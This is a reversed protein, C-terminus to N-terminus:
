TTYSRGVGAGLFSIPGIENEGSVQPPAIEEKAGFLLRVSTELDDVRRRFGNDDGSQRFRSAIWILALGAGCMLLGIPLTRTSLGIDGSLRLGGSASVEPPFYLVGLGVVIMLLAVFVLVAKLGFLVSPRM